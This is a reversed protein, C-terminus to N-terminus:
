AKLFDKKVVIEKLFPNNLKLVNTNLGHTQRFNEVKSLERYGFTSFKRRGFIKRFDEPSERYLIERFHVPMYRFHVTLKSLHRFHVPIKTLHRFHQFYGDIKSIKSMKSMKRYM